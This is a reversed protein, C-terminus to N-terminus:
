VFFNFLYILRKFINFSILFYFTFKFQSLFLFIKLFIILFFVFKTFIIHTSFPFPRFMIRQFLHLVIITRINISFYCGFVSVYGFYVRGYHIFQLCLHNSLLRFFLLLLILFFMSLFIFLNELIRTFITGTYWIKVM